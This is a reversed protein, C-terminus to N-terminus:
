LKRRASIAVGLDFGLSYKHWESRMSVGILMPGVLAAVIDYPFSSGPLLVLFLVLLAGLAFQPFLASFLYTGLVLALGIAVRKRFLPTSLDDRSTLSYM